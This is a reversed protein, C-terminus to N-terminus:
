KEKKYIKLFSGGDETVTRSCNLERQSVAYLGRLNCLLEDAEIQDAFRFNEVVYGTINLREFEAAYKGILYAAIIKAGEETRLTFTTWGSKFYAVSWGGGTQHIGFGKSRKKRSKWKFSDRLRIIAPLEGRM